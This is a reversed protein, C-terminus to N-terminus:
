DGIGIYIEVEANTPTNKEARYLEFDAQYTRNLNHNWIEMWKKIVIGEYLNGKAIFLKYAEKKFAMGVMGEPIDKLDSVRHGLLTTYPLNHDGEYETYVCYIGEDLKNSIKSSIEEKMFTDWLAPIDQAAKGNQNTTRVKIGVIYFEKEEIFNM